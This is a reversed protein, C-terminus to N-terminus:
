SARGAPAALATEVIERLRAKTLVDHGILVAAITAKIARVLDGGLHIGKVEAITGVLVRTVEQATLLQGPQFADKSPNEAM